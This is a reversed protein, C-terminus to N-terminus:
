SEKLFEGLPVADRVEMGMLQPVAECTYGDGVACVYGTDGFHQSVAVFGYGQPHVCVGIFFAHFSCAIYETSGDFVCLLSRAPEGARDDIKDGDRNKDQNRLPYRM